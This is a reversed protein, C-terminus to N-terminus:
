TPSAGITVQKITTWFLDCYKVWIIGLIEEHTLNQYSQMSTTKEISMNVHWLVFLTKDPFLNSLLNM